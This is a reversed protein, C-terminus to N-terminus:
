KKLVKFSESHVGDSLNVIYVDPLFSFDIDVVNDSNITEQRVLSGNATFIKITILKSTILKQPLQISLENGIIPNPYAIAKNLTVEVTDMELIWARLIKVFEKDVIDRGLPPMKIASTEKVRRFMESHLTDNPAIVSADIISNRSVIHGDIIKQNLLHTSFRADFDTEVGNPQHCFSCNADIYSRVKMENNAEEDFLSVSSRIQLIEDESMERNFLQLHNLTRLQNDTVGSKPYTINGNLSHAKPGLVGGSPENHCTICQNRSPYTWTQLRTTGDFNKILFDKTEANNLLRADTQDDNWKYTLGSVKRDEGVILFRTEIRKTKAPNTEDVPLDFHKIFVTGEPFKWQNLDGILIQENESDHKGDNPIAMWRKKVAGDSYLQANVSYPIFGDIPELTELNKFAGLESLLEPASANAAGPAVLKKVVGGGDEPSYLQVLFIEDRGDSAFSVFSRGGNETPLTAFYDVKGDSPDLKFFHYSHYDSFIYKDGCTHFNTAAIFLDM